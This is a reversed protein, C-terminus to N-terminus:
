SRAVQRSDSQIRALDPQTPGVICRPCRTDLDPLARTRRSREVQQRRHTTSSRGIGIATHGNAAAEEIFYPSQRTGTLRMVAITATPRRNGIRYLDLHIVSRLVRRLPTDPVADIGQDEWAIDQRVHDIRLTLLRLHVQTHQRVKRTVVHKP